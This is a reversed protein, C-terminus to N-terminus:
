DEALYNGPLWFSELAMHHLELTSQFSHLQVMGMRNQDQDRVLGGVQVGRSDVGTRDEKQLM